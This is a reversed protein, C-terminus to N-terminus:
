GHEVADAVSDVIRFVRDLRALEFLARVSDPPAAIRLDGERGVMIRLGYLVAEMGTSDMFELDSLDLVLRDSNTEVIKKLEAKLAPATTEDLKGQLSIMTVGDLEEVAKIVKM